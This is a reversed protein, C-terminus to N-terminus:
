NIIRIGEYNGIRKPRASPASADTGLTQSALSPALGSVVGAHASGGLAQNYVRRLHIQQKPDLCSALMPLLEAPQGSQQLQQQTVRVSDLQQSTFFGQSLGADVVAREAEAHTM